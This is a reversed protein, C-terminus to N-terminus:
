GLRLSTDSSESDVPAGTSNGANTISESSHGEEYVATKESEVGGYREHMNNYIKVMVCVFTGFKANFLLELNLM